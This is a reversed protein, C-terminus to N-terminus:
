LGGDLRRRQWPAYRPALYQYARSAKHEHHRYRGKSKQQIDKQHNPTLIAGEATKPLKIVRPARPPARHTRRSPREAAEEPHRIKKIGDSAETMRLLVGSPADRLVCWRLAALEERGRASAEAEAFPNAQAIQLRQIPRSAAPSTHWGGM